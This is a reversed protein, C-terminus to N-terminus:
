APLEVPQTKFRGAVQKGIRMGPKEVYYFMVASLLATLAPTLILVALPDIQGVLLRLIIAHNLYISYSVMGLWAFTASNAIVSTQARESLIFVAFIITAISWAFLSNLLSINPHEFYGFAVYQSVLMAVTFVAFAMAFKQKTMWGQHMACAAYGIMAANLMGMRGFPMRWEFGVSMASLALMVLSSLIALEFIYRYRFVLFIILFSLYWFIEITLTWAVGLLFVHGTFDPLFLLNSIFGDLGVASLSGDFGPLNLLDGVIIILLTFAFAPYLRFFRRTVFSGVSFRNRVSFPIVYGSIFFFLVVGMVGPGLALFGGFFEHYTLEFLHQFLVLTAAVFRLFDLYQLRM